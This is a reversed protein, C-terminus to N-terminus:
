PIAGAPPGDPFFERIADAIRDSRNEPSPHTSFFEPPEGGQRSSALVEM